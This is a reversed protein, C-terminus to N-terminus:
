PAGGSGECAGRLGVPSGEGKEGGVEVGLNGERERVRVGRRGRREGGGLGGQVLRPHLQALLSCPTGKVVVHNRLRPLPLHRKAVLDTSQRRLHNPGGIRTKQGAGKDGEQRPGVM